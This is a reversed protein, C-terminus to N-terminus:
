PSDEHPEITRASHTTPADAIRVGLSAGSAPDSIGYTPPGPMGSSPASRTTAGPVGVEGISTSPAARFGNSTFDDLVTRYIVVNDYRDISGTYHESANFAVSRGDIDVM